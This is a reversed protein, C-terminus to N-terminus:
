ARREKTEVLLGKLPIQILQIMLSLHIPLPEVLGLAPDQVKVVIVGHLAIPRPSLSQIVTFLFPVQSHQKISPQVHALLIGLHGIGDQDTNSITHGAPTPLNDGGTSLM